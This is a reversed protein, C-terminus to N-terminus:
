PINLCLYFFDDDMFCELLSMMFIVQFAKFILFKKKKKLYKCYWEFRYLLNKGDGNGNNM